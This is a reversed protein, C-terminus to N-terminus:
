RELRWITNWGWGNAANLGINVLAMGELHRAAALPGVDLPELGISAVLELVRQKAALDDGAVYGDVPGDAAGPDAQVAAFVTNFAKVVSAGPLQQQFQEAASTGEVALGSFDPTLPNTADVVVHGRAADAIEPAVEDRAVAYPVALIAVDADRVAAANDTAATAGIKRAADQAHEPDHATFTVDHGARTLSAGLARGVNGSGIIAVKM